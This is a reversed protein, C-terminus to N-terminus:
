LHKSSMRLRLKPISTLPRKTQDIKHRRQQALVKAEKLLTAASNGGGGSKRSPSTNKKKVVNYFRMPESYSTGLQHQGLQIVNPEDVGGSGGRSCSLTGNSIVLDDVLLTFAKAGRTPTKTYNWVKVKSVTVPYDFVIYIYNIQGPLFPALWSHLGNSSSNVGDILKEPTRVDEVAPNLINISSPFAAIEKDTLKILRENADYLEVGNLGIYYYDGWTDLLEFKFVFGTPMDTGAYSTSTLASNGRVDMPPATIMLDQAYDYHVNGPARRLLLKKNLEGPRRGDLFVEIEKAGHYSDEYSANYNYVRFGSVQQAQIFTMRVSIYSSSNSSSAPPPLQMLCMQRVDTTINNDNLLVLPSDDEDSYSTLLEVSCKSAIPSFDDGLAIVGTLGVFSSQNWASFIRIEICKVCYTGHPSQLFGSSSNNNVTTFPRDPEVPENNKATAPRQQQNEYPMFTDNYEYAFTREKFFPDNQAIRDLIQEDVTFLINDGFGDMDESSAGGGGSAKCIEGSFIMKGNLHVSIERAGRQSHIRSKNYNWIRIMAITTHQALSIRVFHSSGSTFPVLWMNVDDCTQNVGNVLNTFTRPDNSYEPLVNIDPPEATIHAVEAPRGSDTFIEIGNLGVYHQDGWTSHINFVLENGNPLMPITFDTLNNGDHPADCDYDITIEDDQDDDDGVVYSMENNWVSNSLRGLQSRNFHLLSDLTAQSHTDGETNNNNNHGGSSSSSNKTDEKTRSSPELVGSHEGSRRAAGKAARKHERGSKNEAERAAAAAAGVDAVSFSRSRLVSFSRPSETAEEGESVYNDNEDLFLEESHVSSASSEDVESVELM